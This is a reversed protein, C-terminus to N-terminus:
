ARRREGLRAHDGEQRQRRERPLRRADGGGARRGRARVHSARRAVVQQRGYAGGGQWGACPGCFPLATCHAFCEHSLLPCGGQRAPCPACM